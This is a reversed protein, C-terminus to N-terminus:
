SNARGRHQGPRALELLDCRRAPDHRGDRRFRRHRRRQVRCQAAHRVPVRGPRRPRDADDNGGGGNIINDGNNGIILNAFANGTLDIATTDAENTTRLTKSTPAQRRRTWSVSTRAEDLGQGGDESVSDNLDDIFYTDNGGRGIMQDVGGGGDIINVAENGTIRNSGANGTLDIATVAYATLTEIEAGAALAYSVWTGVMDVGQGASEFVQVGVDRVWYNDNGTGGIMTDVGTWGDLSDDSAGGRLTDNGIGGDLIDHGNGGDLVDNDIDGMVVDNGDGGDLTDNGDLGRM